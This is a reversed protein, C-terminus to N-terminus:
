PGRAGLKPGNKLLKVTEVLRKVWGKAGLGM